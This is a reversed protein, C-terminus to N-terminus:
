KKSTTWWWYVLAAVIIVLLIWGWTNMKLSGGEEGGNAPDILPM